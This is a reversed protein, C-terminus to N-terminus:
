SEEAIGPAKAKVGYALFGCRTDDDIYDTGVRCKKGSISYLVTGYPLCGLQEPTILNLDFPCFEDKRSFGCPDLILDIPLM